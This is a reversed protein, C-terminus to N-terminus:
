INLDRLSLEMCNERNKVSPFFKLTIDNKSIKFLATFHTGGFVDGLPSDTMKSMPVYVKEDSIVNLAGQISKEADPLLAIGRNYREESRYNSENDISIHKLDDSIYHNTRIYKDDIKTIGARTSTTEINIIKQEHQSAINYSYGGSRGNTLCLKTAEEITKAETMARDLLGKPIGIKLDPDQMANGTMVLGNTSFSVSNGPICGPYAYSFLIPGKNYKAILIYSYDRMVKEHDENHALIIHDDKKFVLTSCEIKPIELKISHRFNALAINRYKMKAGDAIGKMEEVYQPFYEEANIQLKDFWEPKMSDMLKLGIYFPSRNFARRILKKFKQGVEFGIEYHSGSLQIIPFTINESM